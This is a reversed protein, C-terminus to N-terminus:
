VIWFWSRANNNVPYPYYERRWFKGWAVLAHDLGWGEEPGPVGSKMEIQDCFRHFISLSGTNPQLRQWDWLNNRLASLFDIPNKLAQLGFTKQVEQIATTNGASFVKDLHNLVTQVDSSCNKPMNERIPEFYEWFDVIAQVVGSSSYAAHFLGPKSVMTWSALAGAYSGGAYIWPVQHPAVQDGGPMALVVNNAFYELDEIAQQITHVRFSEISLDPYPNSEGYFRHELIITAGNTEQAITGMITANTLYSFFFDFPVEGPTSLIIPGGESLNPQGGAVSSIAVEGPKYYEWTHFYRQKFTGLSPNKHDILQDFYYM